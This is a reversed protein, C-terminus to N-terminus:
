RRRWVSLLGGWVAAVLMVAGIILLAMGLTDRDDGPEGPEALEGDHHDSAAPLTPTAALWGQGVATQVGRATEDVEGVAPTLTASATAAASPTAPLPPPTASSVAAMAPAPQSDTMAQAEGAASLAEAEVDFASTATTETPVEIVTEGGPPIFEGGGGMGGMGGGAPMSDGTVGADGAQPLADTTQMGVDPPAIDDDDGGGGFETAAGEGPMEMAAFPEGAPEAYMLEESPPAALTASVPTGEAISTMKSAQSLDLEAAEDQDQEDDRGEIVDDADDFAAAGDAPLTSSLEAAVNLM